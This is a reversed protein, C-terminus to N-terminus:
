GTPHENDPNPCALIARPRRKGAALFFVPWRAETAPEATHVLERTTTPTSPSWTTPVQVIRRLASDRLDDLDWPAPPSSSPCPMLDGGVWGGCRCPHGIRNAM